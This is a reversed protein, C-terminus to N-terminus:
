TKNQYIEDNDKKKLNKILTSQLLIQVQELSSIFSFYSLLTKGEPINEKTM